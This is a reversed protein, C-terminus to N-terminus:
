VKITSKFLLFPWINREILFFFVVKPFLRKLSCTPNWEQFGLGQFKLSPPGSGTTQNRSCHEKWVLHWKLLLTAAQTNHEEKNETFDWCSDEMNAYFWCFHKQLQLKKFHTHVLTFSIASFSTMRLNQILYILKESAREEGTLPDPSWAQM